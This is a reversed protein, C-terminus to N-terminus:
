RQRRANTSSSARQPTRSAHVDGPSASSAARARARGRAAAARSTARRRARAPKKASPSALAVPRAPPSRTCTPCRRRRVVRRRHDLRVLRAHRQDHEGGVPRGLQAVDAGPLRDVLDLEVAVRGLPEQSTSSVRRRGLPHAPHAREGAAREPGREVATRARHVQVERQALREHEVLRQGVVLGAAAPAGSPRGHTVRARGCRAARASRRRRARRALELPARARTSTAPRSSRSGRSPAASAANASRPRSAAARRGATPRAGRRRGRDGVVVRQQAVRRKPAARAGSSTSRTPSRGVDLGSRAHSARGRRRRCTASSGSLAHCSGAPTTPWAARRRGARVSSSRAPRAGDRASGRGRRARRSARRRGRRRRRSRAVSPASSSLSGRTAASSPARSGASPSATRRRRSAPGRRRSTRGPARSSAAARARWGRRSRSRRCPRPRTRRRRRRRRAPPAASRRRRAREVVEAAQEGARRSPSGSVITSTSLSPPPIKSKRGTAVCPSPTRPARRSAARARSRARPPATRARAVVADGVGSRTRAASSARAPRRAARREISTRVSRSPSRRRQVARTHSATRAARRANRAVIACHAVAPCGPRAPARARRAGSTSPSRRPRCRGARCSPGCAEVRQHVSSSCSSDPRKSSTTRGRSERM